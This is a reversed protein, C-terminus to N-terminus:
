ESSDSWAPDAPRTSDKVGEGNQLVSELKSYSWAPDAPRTSDKVGEGNHLVSM